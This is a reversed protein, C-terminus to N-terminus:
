GNGEAELELPSLEREELDENVESITKKDVINLKNGYGVLLALDCLNNIKRPIGGACLYIEKYADEAFLPKKAGAISLRHNIYERTERENLAKLHYRIAMRQMLQPLAVILDNLEPQGLLVITLLFANDLQFNLLLRLEEFIDKNRIAQAEDIVVVTHRGGIHQSYLAKHLSHFLDVKNSPIEGGILQHHIEQLFELDSLRPNLIFVAQYHDEQQLEQWLLRSLLTKGSGYEGTLLGGGKRERVVYLMRALAEKHQPSYYIFKPHPTNEFPKEKLEWYAIYM